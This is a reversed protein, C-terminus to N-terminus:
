WYDISFSFLRICVVRAFIRGSKNVIANNDAGPIASACLVELPTEDGELVEDSAYLVAGSLVPLFTRSLDRFATM